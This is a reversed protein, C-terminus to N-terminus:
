YVINEILLNIFNLNPLRLHHRHLRMEKTHIEKNVELLKTKLSDLIIIQSNIIEQKMLIEGDLGTSAVGKRNRM